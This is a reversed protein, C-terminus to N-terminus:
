TKIGGDARFISGTIFSSEPSALYGILSAVEAPTGFRGIPIQKRMEAQVSEGAFDIIKTEVWGPCIANIRVNKKAMELAATQTLSVVGAKAVAYPGLGPSGGLGAISAVNIISGDRGRKGMHPVAYKHSWFVSTLDLLMMHNWEETTIKHLKKPTGGIGANSVWVDIGGNHEAAAGALKKVHEELGVDGAVF